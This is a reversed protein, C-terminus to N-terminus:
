QAKWHRNCSRPANLSLLQRCWSLVIAARILRMWIPWSARSRDASPMGCSAWSRLTCGRNMGACRGSRWTNAVPDEGGHADDFILTQAEALASWHNFVHHYNSIAVSDGARFAAVAANDWGRHPGTLLVVDIGYRSAKGAVHEALQNNVCAYAVRQKLALRRWEGILLGVLTKGSGTPLELAVDHHEVHAQSYTQLANGQHVWLDSLGPETVQLREYLDLPSEPATVPTPPLPFTM